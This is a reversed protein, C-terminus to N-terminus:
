LMKVKYEKELFKITAWNPCRIGSLWGLVTSNSIKLKVALEETRFDKEEKLKAFAIQFKKIRAPDRKM